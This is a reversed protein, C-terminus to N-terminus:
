CDHTRDLSNLSLGAMLGRVGGQGGLVLVGAHVGQQQVRLGAGLESDHAAAVVHAAVADHGESANDGDGSRVRLAPLATHVDLGDEAGDRADAVVAVLLDEEEALVDVGVAVGRLGAAEGEGVLGRGAEARGGGRAGLGAHEERLQECADRLCRGVYANAEHRRVGLCAGNQTTVRLVERQRRQLHDPRVGVDALGDVQGHLAAAVATQAAHVPGVRAVGEEAKHVLDARRQRLAREARVHDRAEAALRLRLVRLRHRQHLLHAEIVREHVQEAHALVGECPPM